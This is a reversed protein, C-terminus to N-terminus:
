NHFKKKGPFFSTGVVNFTADELGWIMYGRAAENICASNSIASITEVIMEPDSNDKKVEVLESEGKKLEDILNTVLFEGKM